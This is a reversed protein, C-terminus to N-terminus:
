SVFWRERLFYGLGSALEAAGTATIEVVGGPGDALSFCPPAVGGVCGKTDIAFVFHSKAGPLQRDLLDEVASVTGLNVYPAVPDMAGAIKPGFVLAIVSILMM